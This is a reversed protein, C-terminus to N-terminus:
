ARYRNRFILGWAASLVIDYATRSRSFAILQSKWSQSSLISSCIICVVSLASSTPLTKCLFHVKCCVNASICSRSFVASCTLAMPWCSVWSTAFISLLFFFLFLLECFSRFISFLLGQLYQSLVCGLCFFRQGAYPFHQLLHPFGLWKAVIQMDALCDFFRNIPFCTVHSWCPHWAPLWHNPCLPSASHSPDFCQNRSSDTLCRVTPFIFTLLTLSRSFVTGITILSMM